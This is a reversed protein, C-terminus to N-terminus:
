REAWAEFLALCEARLLGGEVTIGSAADGLPTRLSAPRATAPFLPRFEDPGVGFVIREIGAIEAATFCMACPMATAYLAAGALDPSGAARCAERVADIEAHRTVDGSAPVTNHTCALIEGGRVLCAGFPYQGAAVGHRTKDIAARMFREDLDRTM